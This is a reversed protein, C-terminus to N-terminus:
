AGPGDLGLRPHIYFATLLGLGTAGGIWSWRWFGSDLNLVWIKPVALAIAALLLTAFLCWPAVACFQQMLMRRRASAVQRRILDM